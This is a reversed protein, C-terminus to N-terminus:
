NSAMPIPSNLEREELHVSFLVSEAPEMGV